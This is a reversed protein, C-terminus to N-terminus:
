LTCETPHIPPWVFPNGRWDFTRQAALLGTYLRNVAEIPKLTDCEINASKSVFHENICFRIRFGNGTGNFGAYTFTFHTLDPDVSVLLEETGDAKQRIYLPKDEKAFKQICQFYAKALFRDVLGVAMSSVLDDVIQM